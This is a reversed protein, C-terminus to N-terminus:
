RRFREADIEFQRIKTHLNQRSMGALTAARTIVGRAEQLVDMMYRREFAAKATAFDPFGSATALERIEPPLADRDIVARDTLTVVREVINELERVNGPWPYAELAAMAAPTFSRPVGDPGPKAFRGLCHEVLLPLDGRRDRLPPVQVPLVNLRFYLDERFEGAEVLPELDRNTAAVWRLDVAVPEEAGLPQVENEQIARLLKVQVSLPIESVEDLFITGRHAREFAGHKRHTAGTFAGPMSGFLEGELLSEPIAACHVPVLPGEHRESSAHIARAVLEKGSGSEGLILVTGDSRGVLELTRYLERMASSGGILGHFSTREDLLQRLRRNEVVLRHQELAKDLVAVAQELEFPKTLFEAAGARVAAIATPITAYATMLIVITEPSFARIEELVRLGDVDPMKLDTFVVDPPDRRAEEIGAAGGDAERVQHGRRSLGKRLFFRFGEEDDIVLIKLRVSPEM